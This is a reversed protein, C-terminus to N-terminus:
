QYKVSCGYARAAAVSVPRGARAEDLATAVFNSAGKVDDPDASRRDDIGGAYIVRGDPDVVYMHPTTRAGYLRGVQGESDMLIAAPAAHWTKMRAALAAPELFDQHSPHTSSVSLWVVGAAAYKGQLGQMNNSVYHKRVFPCNPNVWELVVYKGKYDALTTTKGGTDKLSFAPAAQGPVADAVAPSPLCAAAFIPLCAIARALRLNM